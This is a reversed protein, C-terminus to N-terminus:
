LETWGTSKYVYIAGTSPNTTVSGYGPINTASIPNGSLAGTMKIKELTCWGGTVNFYINGVTMKELSAKAYGNISLQGNVFINSHESAYTEASSSGISYNGNVRNMRSAWSGTFSAPGAIDTNFITGGGDLTANGSIYSDEIKNKGGSVVLAAAGVDRVYTKGLLNLTTFSGKHIVSSSFSATKCVVKGFVGGASSVSGSSGPINLYEFNLSNSLITAVSADGILQCYGIEGPVDSTVYLNKAIDATGISIGRKVTTYSFHLSVNGTTNISGIELQDSVITTVHNSDTSSTPLIRVTGYVSWAGSLITNTWGFGNTSVTASSWTTTDTVYSAEEHIHSIMSSSANLNLCKDYCDHVEVSGVTLHNSTDLTSATSAPYSEFSVGWYSTNGCSIARVDLISSDYCSSLYVGPGDFGTSCLAGRIVTGSFTHLQGGLKSHRSNIDRITISDILQNGISTGFIMGTADYTANLNTLAWPVSYGPATIGSFVSSDLFLPLPGTIGKLGTITIGNKIYIGSKIYHNENGMGTVIHTKRSIAQNIASQLLGSMDVPTGVSINQQYIGYNDLKIESGVREWYFGVGQAVTGGDDLKTGIHGIFIGGGTSGNEYYSKLFIRQGETRVPTSRLTDFSKVGGILKFGDPSGLLNTFTDQFGNALEQVGKMTIRKKGFRDTYTLDDSNMVRDFQESNFKLDVAANSPIDGTTPTTAM